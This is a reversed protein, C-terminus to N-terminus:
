MSPVRPIETMQGDLADEKSPLPVSAAEEGHTTPMWFAPMWPNLLTMLAGALVLVSLKSTRILLLAARIM